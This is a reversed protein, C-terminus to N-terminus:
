DEQAEVMEEWSEFVGAAYATPLEEPKFMGMRAAMAAVKGFAKWENWQLILHGLCHVEKSRDRCDGDPDEYEDWSDYDVTQHCPFCGDAAEELERVRAMSLHFGHAIVFPCNNCPEKMTFKTM